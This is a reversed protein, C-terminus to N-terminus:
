RVTVTGGIRSLRPPQEASLCLRRMKTPLVSGQVTRRPPLADGLEFRALAASSLSCWFSACEPKVGPDRSGSRSWAPRQIAAQIGIRMVVAFCRRTIRCRPQATPVPVVCLTRPRSGQSGSTAAMGNDARVAHGCEYRRSDPEVGWPRDTVRATKARPRRAVPGIM